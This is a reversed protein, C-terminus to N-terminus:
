GCESERPLGDLFRQLIIVAALRDIRKKDQGVKKGHAHIIRTAEVSSLREDVKHIPGSYVQALREVFRDVELSKRSKEGSMSLPYGVILAKPGYEGIIESLKKLADSVSTVELTTLASAILGTPDSKAVGIRRTGYDIGIFTSDNVEVM